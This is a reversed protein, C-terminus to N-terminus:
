KEDCSGQMERWSRVDITVQALRPISVPASAIAIKLMAVAGLAGAGTGAGALLLSEVLMQRV